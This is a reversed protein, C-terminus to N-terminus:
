KGTLAQKKVIECVLTMRLWLLSCIHLYYSRNKKLSGFLSRTINCENFQDLSLFVVSNLVIDQTPEMTCFNIYDVILEVIKSTGDFFGLSLLVIYNIHVFFSVISTCKSKSMSVRFQMMFYKLTGDIM